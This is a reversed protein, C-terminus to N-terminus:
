ASHASFYCQIGWKWWFLLCRTLAVSSWGAQWSSFFLSLNFFELLYNFPREIKFFFFLPPALDGSFVLCTALFLQWQSLDVSIFLLSEHHLPSGTWPFLDRGTAWVFGGVAFAKSRCLGLYRWADPFVSTPIIGRLCFARRALGRDALWGSSHIAKTQPGPYFSRRVAYPYERLCIDSFIEMCWSHEAAASVVRGLTGGQPGWVWVCEKLHVHGVCAYLTQSVFLPRKM